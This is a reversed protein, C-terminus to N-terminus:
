NDTNTEKNIPPEDVPPNDEESKNDIPTPNEPTGPKETNEAPKENEKKKSVVISINEGETVETGEAKSQSIVIGNQKDSEKITVTVNLKLDKLKKEADEKKLGVVNPVKVIKKTHVDCVEEPIDYFESENVTRWKGNKEKDPKETYHKEETNPCNENAIKGTETCITLVKHGECKDPITGRVFYETYTDDCEDTAVKGSAKCIRATTVNSPREFSSNPLDEHIRKMIIAWLRAAPNTSSHTPEPSDYGYWATATYYPTFGCFWRDKNDNTTGTKGGTDHGSIKCYPATGGGGVPGTLISKLVFSNGESMVRNKEQVPELVVEGKNNEVKTYFTPTIYVGDNAITAYAGAMELPSIGYTLGGLVLPLSEDNTEANEDATVLSTVGMKRMFAISNRPGLETMIKVETTNASVEIAKRVTILGLGSSTPRYNGFYTASENYVTAGTIIGAELAPAISAIPKIASGPQRTSTARNLGNSDVDNGYGGMCGVVKGTKHDTIVMASQVHENILNGDNDKKRGSVLYDDNNRYVDEMISQITTDQTTYIKFGGSEVKTKAYQWTLDKEKAYQEIVQNLAARAVYSMTNGSAPTGKKFEFGAEVKEIATKYEEETIKELEKMKGLVIKTRRKIKETNDNEGYPNYSNPADNIGALFACEALDLETCSKAFYYQSGLEVGYVDGGMFIINLYLELIQDKSLITEVQYARSIERIKRKIGEIGSNDKDNKLNKILQQTITSGGYASGSGRHLIYSITAGITRKVNVGHHKEFTEDEISIFADKLDEPIDDLHVVRRKEDGSVSAIEMGDKDYITTNIQSLTLDDKTISWDDSFLIGAIVGAGIIVSLIILVIIIRIFIKLKSHKKKEKKKKETKIPKNNNKNLKVKKTDENKNKKKNKKGM